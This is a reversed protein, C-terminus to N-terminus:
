EFQRGAGSLAPRPRRRTPAKAAVPQQRRPVGYLFYALPLYLLYSQLTLEGGLLSNAIQNLLLLGMWVVPVTAAPSRLAQVVRRGAVICAVLFAVAIVVGFEVAIELFINHPVSIFRQYSLFNGMGIGNVHDDVVRLATTWLDIRDGEGSNEQVSVAALTFRQSIAAPAFQLFVGVAVLLGVMAPVIRHLQSAGYLAVMVVGASLLVALIPGRTGTKIAAAVSFLLMAVHLVSPRRRVLMQAVAYLALLLCIKSMVAPNLEISSKRINGTDTGTVLNVLCYFASVAAMSQVFRTTAVESRFTLIPVAFLALVLVLIFYQYKTQGYGFRAPLFLHNLIVLTGALATWAISRGVIPVRNKLPLTLVALVCLAGATILLGQQRRWDELFSAHAVGYFGAALASVPWALVDIASRKEPRAKRLATM